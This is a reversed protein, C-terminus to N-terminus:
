LLEVLVVGLGADYAVCFEGAGMLRAGAEIHAFVALVELLCCYVELFSDGGGNKGFPPPSSRNLLAIM